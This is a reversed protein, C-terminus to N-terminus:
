EGKEMNDQWKDVGERFCSKSYNDWLKSRPKKPKADEIFKEIALALGKRDALCYLSLPVKTTISKEVYHELMKEIREAIKGMIKGM